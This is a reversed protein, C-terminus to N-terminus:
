GVPRLISMALGDLIDSESVLCRDAGVRGMVEALILAGGVIVDAREREMAPRQQRQEVTDAALRGLMDDVADRTLWHHHVQERDYEALGLDFRALASVTGALGVLTAPEGLAPVEAIAGDLLGRVARRAADLETGTPPDGALYGESVRVCGMDLSRVGAIEPEVGPEAPRPGAILETSGGGIDVVLLPALAPDLGTTAGTFSLHGEQEGSLLEAPAGAAVRAADLFEDRNAADRAASTATMRVRGVCHGDMIWRFEELVRITRDIAEPALRGSAAVGQGLRTIQMRRDLAAGDDDVVLLRTSNTGCDVAAVPGATM